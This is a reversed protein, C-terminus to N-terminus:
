NELIKGINELQTEYDKQRRELDLFDNERDKLVKLQGDKIRLVVEAQWFDINSINNENENLIIVSLKKM